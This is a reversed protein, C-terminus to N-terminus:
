CRFEDFFFADSGVAGAGPPPGVLIQNMAADDVGVPALAARTIREHNQVYFAQSRPAPLALLATVVVSAVIVGLRGLRSRRLAAM